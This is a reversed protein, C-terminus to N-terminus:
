SPGEYWSLFGEQNGIFPYLIASLGGQGLGLLVM